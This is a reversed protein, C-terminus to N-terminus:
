NPHIDTGPRPLSTSSTNASSLRHRHHSFINTNPLFQRLVKQIKEIPEPQPTLLDYTVLHEVIDDEEEDEQVTYGDGQLSGVYLGVAHYCVCGCDHERTHTTKALGQISM